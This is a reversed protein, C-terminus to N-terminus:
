VMKRRKSKRRKSKRQKSKQYKSKRQKSKGGRSKIEIENSKFCISDNNTIANLFHSYEEISFNIEPVIIPSSNLPFALTEIIIEDGIGGYISNIDFIESNRQFILLSSAGRNELDFKTTLKRQKCILANSDDITAPEGTSFGDESVFGKSIKIKLLNLSIQERYTPTAHRLVMDSIMLSDGKNYFGRLVKKPTTGKKYMNNIKNQIEVIRGNSPHFDGDSNMHPHYIAEKQDLFLIESGLVYEKDKGFYTVINYIGLDTHYEPAEFNKSFAACAFFIRSATENSLIRLENLVGSNVLKYILFKQFLKRKPHNTYETVNMREMENEYFIPQVLPVSEFIIEFILFNFEEMIELFEWSTFDDIGDNLGSFKKILPYGEISISFDQQIDEVLLEM